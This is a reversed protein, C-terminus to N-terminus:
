SGSTIRTHGRVLVRPRYRLISSFSFLLVFFEDLSREQKVKFLPEELSKSYLALCDAGRTLSAVTRISAAAECALQASDAHARKNLQDKLVVVRKLTCDHLRSTTQSPPRFMGASHLGNFHPTSYM